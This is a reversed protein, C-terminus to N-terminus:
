QSHAFSIGDSRPRHIQTQIRRRIPRPFQALRREARPRPTDPIKQALQDLAPRLRLIRLQRRLQPLNPPPIVPGRQGQQKDRAHHRRPQM